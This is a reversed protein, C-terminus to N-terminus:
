PALPAVLVVSLSWPSADDLFVEDGFRDGAGPIGTVMYDLSAELEVGAPWGGAGLRALPATAVDLELDLAHTYTGTADPTEAPGLQDVVDFHADLWGGTERFTALAINLEGELEVANDRIEEEGLEDATRGTFPNADTGAFPAWIAELTLDVRPIETPIGVALVVEFVTETDVRTTDVPIGDRLTATRHRGAINEISLTPELAVDPPCLIRCGDPEQAVLRGPDAGELLLIGSVAVLWRWAPTRIPSRHVHSM